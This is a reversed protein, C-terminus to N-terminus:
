DEVVRLVVKERPEPYTTVVTSMLKLQELLEEIKTQNRIIRSLREDKTYKM